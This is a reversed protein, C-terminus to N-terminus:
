STPKRPTQHGRPRESGESSREVPKGELLEIRKVLATQDVSVNQRFEGHAREHRLFERHLEQLKSTLTENQAQLREITSELAQKRDLRYHSVEAILQSLYEAIQTLTVRTKGFEGAQVNEFASHVDRLASVMSGAATSATTHFQEVTGQLDKVAATISGLGEGITKHLNEVAGQHNTLAGAISGAGDAMAKPVTEVSRTLAETRQTLAAHLLLNLESMDFASTANPIGAVLAALDIQSGSSDTQSM